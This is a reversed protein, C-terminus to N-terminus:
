VKKTILHTKYYEEEAKQKLQAKIQKQVLLYDEFYTLEHLAHSFDDDVSVLSEIYSPVEQLDDESLSVNTWLRKMYEQAFQHPTFMYCYLIECYDINNDRLFDMFPQIPASVMSLFDFYKQKIKQFAENQKIDLFGNKYESHTKRHLVIKQIPESYLMNIGEFSHLCPIKKLTSTQEDIVVNTFFRRRYYSPVIYSQLKGNIIFRVINNKYNDLTLRNELAAGFGDTTFVRPVIDSWLYGIPAIDANRFQLYKPLWSSGKCAYKTCYKIAAQPSRKEKRGDMLRFDFSSTFGYKWFRKLLEQFQRFTIVEPVFIICHYHPRHNTEGYECTVLIRPLKLGSPIYDYVKNLRNTVPNLAKHWISFKRRYYQRFSKLFRRIHEHNFCPVPEGGLPKYIDPNEKLPSAFVVKPLYDDNYTLTVFFASWRSPKGQPFLEEYISYARVFYENKRQEQCEKCHGCPVSLTLLGANHLVGKNKIHIPHLCM